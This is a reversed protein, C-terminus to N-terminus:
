FFKYRLEIGFTRPPTTYFTKRIGQVCATSGGSGAPSIPACTLGAVPQTGYLTSYTGALREATAGQDYGITDFVNKVYGIIEYKESASKWLFRADVQDWRPAVYYWRKFLGGYANDRWAYSVSGTLSGPEFDWTYNASIAFKNRPANPLHSGALSQYRVRGNNALGNTFNDVACSTPTALCQAFSLIPQAGPQVATPDVVDVATGEQISADIYAYTGIIQLNDIPQWLIEAEFGRSRSKPV